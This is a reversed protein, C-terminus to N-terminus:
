REESILTRSYGSDDLNHVVVKNGVNNEGDELIEIIMQQPLKISLQELLTTYPVITKPHSEEQYLNSWFPDNSEKGKTIVMFYGQLPRDWGMLVHTKQNEHITYFHHQSM